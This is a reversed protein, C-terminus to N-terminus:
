PGPTIFPPAEDPPGITLTIAVWLLVVVGFLLFLKMRSNMMLKKM